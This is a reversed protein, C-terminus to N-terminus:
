DSNHSFNCNIFSYETRENTTTSEVFIGGGPGLKKDFSNMQFSSNEATISGKNNIMALGIGETGQIRVNKISTNISDTIYLTSNFSINFEKVKNEFGCQDFHLNELTITEVNEFYLGGHSKNCLVYSYTNLGTITVMSLNTFNAATNISINSSCIKINASSSNLSINNLSPLCRASAVCEDSNKGGICITSAESTSLVVFCM